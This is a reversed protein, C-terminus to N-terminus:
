NGAKPENDLLDPVPAKQYAVHLWGTSCRYGEMLPHPEIWERETDWFPSYDGPDLPTPDLDNNTLPTASEEPSDFWDIPLEILTMTLNRHDNM